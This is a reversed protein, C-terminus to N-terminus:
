GLLPAARDTYGTLIRPGEALGGIALDNDCHVVDGILRRAPGRHMPRDRGLEVQRLRPGGIPCPPGFDM